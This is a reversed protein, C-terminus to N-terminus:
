GGWGGRSRRGHKLKCKKRMLLPAGTRASPGRSRLVMSLFFHYVMSNIKRPKISVGNGDRRGHVCPRPSDPSSRLSRFNNKRQQECEQRRFCSCFLLIIFLLNVYDCNLIDFRGLKPTQVKQIEVTTLFFYNLPSTLLQHYLTKVVSCLCLGSSNGIFYICLDLLFNM